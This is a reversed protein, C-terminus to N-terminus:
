AFMSRKMCSDFWMLTIHTPLLKSFTSSESFMITNVGTGHRISTLETALVKPELTDKCHTNINNLIYNINTHLFKLNISQFSYLIEVMCHRPLQSHM